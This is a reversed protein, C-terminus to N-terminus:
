CSNPDPQGPSSINIFISRRSFAGFQPASVKVPIERNNLDVITLDCLRGFASRDDSAEAGLGSNMAAREAEVFNVASMKGEIKQTRGQPGTAQAPSQHNSM